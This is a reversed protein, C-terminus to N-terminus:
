RGLIWLVLAVIALIGVITWVTDNAVVGQDRLSEPEAPNPPTPQPYAPEKNIGFLVYGVYPIRALLESARWVIAGTGGLILIVTPDEVDIEWGLKAAIWVVIGIWAATFGTRVNAINTDNM